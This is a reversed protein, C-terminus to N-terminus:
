PTREGLLTGGGAVARAQPEPARQSLRAGAFAGAWLPTFLLAMRLAEHGAGFLGWALLACSTALLVGLLIQLTRASRPRGLAFGVGVVVLGLAWPPCGLLSPNQHAAWHKSAAFVSLAVGLLGLLLGVVATAVGFLVRLAPRSRAGRGLAALVAGLLAGSAGFALWPAPPERPVAPRQNALLSREHRVLPVRLGDRERTQVALADHLEQPLFLEEWRTTPRDTPAGLAVDLGFYLWPAEGVRTLTHQRFTMSGPGVVRRRLAGGLLGDLADRVRTSCNDRYYDYDYYRHEPRANRVLARQLEAREASTLDLEQATLSREAAAYARRTQELTTVSLWYRFRGAMFDRVGNLGDFEFTGFNYVANKGRGGDGWELLIANHGFRTFPHDGPGMTLVSVRDPPEQASASRAWCMSALLLVLAVLLAGWGSQQRPRPV